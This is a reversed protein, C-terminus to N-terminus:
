RTKGRTERPAVGIVVKTGAALAGAQAPTVAVFGDGSTGARVEIRRQTGEASVATVVTRGDAGASVATVPVVLAEGDTAASEITLRVDQGAFGAPLPQDARVVMRYGSDAGGGGTGGSGGGKPNQGADQQPLPGAPQAASRETAVVAVKGRVDTGAVESSIVVAMGARLLQRKDDKLYAEVVLEGGSLTLVPGSVPSGARAGVSSVRAPFSGLFVSEATPLMPGDAAEAAALASRAEGLAQRARALERGSGPASGAGTGTGTGTGSSPGSGPGPPTAASPTAGGGGGGKGTGVGTGSGTETAGGKGTGVGTGTSAPGSADEVAWTASRVAERASRLAAGGDAVAPLPEYGVARYRATLAAKTGAGFVGRADGGTGHGLERLAQQLQAVDDGTAGPKLDRYMPQAGHLTFVPRGSVEAILQGATVPDGAKLPLKTVLAAGGTGDGSRMGQPSVVVSQDAVVTGRMVVTQALVRREVEATLAGQVPPGTEAAVQAPSKVLTTALLGGVAMLAAGGVVALVVRRGRTLGGRDDQPAALAETREVVQEAESM